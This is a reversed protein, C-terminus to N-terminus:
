NKHLQRAIKRYAWKAKFPSKFYFYNVGAKDRYEIVLEYPSDKKYLVSLIDRAFYVYRGEKDKFHITNM